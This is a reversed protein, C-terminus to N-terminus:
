LEDKKLFSNYAYRYINAVSGLIYVQIQIDFSSAVIIREFLIPLLREKNEIAAFEDLNDAEFAKTSYENYMEFLSWGLNFTEISKTVMKIRRKIKYATVNYERGFRM